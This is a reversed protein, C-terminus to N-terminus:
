ITGIILELENKPKTKIMERIREFAKKAEIQTEYGDKFNRESIICGKIQPMWTSDMTNINMFQHTYIRGEYAAIDDFLEYLLQKTELRKEVDVDNTESKKRASIEKFRKKYENRM